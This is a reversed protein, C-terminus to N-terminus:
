FYQMMNSVPYLGRGTIFHHLTEVYMNNPDM